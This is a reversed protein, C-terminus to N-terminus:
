PVPVFIRILVMPPFSTHSVCTFSDYAASIRDKKTTLIINIHKCPPSTTICVAYSTIFSYRIVPASNSPGYWIGTIGGVCSNGFFLMSKTEEFDLDSNQRGIRRLTLLESQTIKNQRALEEATGLYFETTKVTGSVEFFQKLNIFGTSEQVPFPIIKCM